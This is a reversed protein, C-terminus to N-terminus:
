PATSKRKRRWGLLGLAGLGTAFLPLAAPVPTALTPTLSVDDLFWITGSNVEGIGQFSLNYFNTPPPVFAGDIMTTVVLYANAAQDGTITISFGGFTAEFVDGSRGLVDKVAFSLIYNAGPTTEIIQFLETPSFDNPHVGAFFVASNGSHADQGGTVTDITAGPNTQVGWFNLFNVLEFGGDRVSTLSDAQASGCSSFAVASLLLASLKKRLSSM